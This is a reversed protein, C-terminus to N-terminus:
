LSVEKFSQLSVEGTISDIALVVEVKKKRTFATGISDITVIEGNEVCTVDAYNSGINLEPLSAPCGKERVVKLVTDQAGSRAVGYAEAALRESFRTNSVINAIVVSVVAVEILIGSMMLITPLASVGKERKNRM